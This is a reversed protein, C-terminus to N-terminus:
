NSSVYSEWVQVRELGESPIEIGAGHHLAATYDELFVRWKEESPQKDVEVDIDEHAAAAVFDKCCDVAFDLRAIPIMRREPDTALIAPEEAASIERAFWKLLGAAATLRFDQLFARQEEAPNYSRPFLVESVNEEYLWHADELSRAM